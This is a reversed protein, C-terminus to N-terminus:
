LQKLVSRGFTIARVIGLAGLIVLIAAAVMLLWFGSWAPVALVVVGALVGIVGYVITVVQSRSGISESIAMIGEVIFGIGAVIAIVVLLTASAIAIDRLAVIGGVLLLVGFLVNLVRHGIGLSRGFLGLSLRAIGMVVLYIGFFFALVPITHGPWVLLLVGVIFAIAGAIGFVLRVANIARRAMGAADLRLADRLSDGSTPMSM